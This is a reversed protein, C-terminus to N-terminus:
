FHGLSTRLQRYLVVIGGGLALMLVSAPEPVMALDDIAFDDGCIPQLFM